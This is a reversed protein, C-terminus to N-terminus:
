PTKWNSPIKGNAILFNYLDSLLVKKSAYNASNGYYEYSTRTNRKIFEQCFRKYKLWPIDEWYMEFIKDLSEFEPEEEGPEARHNDKEGDDWCSGGSIGGTSWEVNLSDEDIYIDINKLSNVFIDFPTKIESSNKNQKKM